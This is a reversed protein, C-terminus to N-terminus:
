GGRHGWYKAQEEEVVEGKEIKYIGNFQQGQEFYILEFRLTPFKKGMALIVPKPPSWASNFSYTIEEYELNELELECDYMGWKTGWNKICWDYGGSNFGDYNDPNKKDLDAYKKPYPIFQNEDIVKATSKAFEMFEKLDKLSGEIKLENECHNPMKNIDGKRYSKLCIKEQTKM